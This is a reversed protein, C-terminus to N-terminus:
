RWSPSSSLGSCSAKGSTRSDSASCSVGQSPRDLRLELGASDLARALAGILSIPDFIGVLAGGLLAAVLLAILLYYKLTQWSKYRNSDIASRGANRRPDSTALFHNLTGLPCIWGCFFRGLFLTPILIVLSWLLGRYLASTALANTIAVLPDLDLLLRVPFALRIEAGGSHLSGGYETNCVHLVFLGLCVAQSLRRLRTVTSYTM